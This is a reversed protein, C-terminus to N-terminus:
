LYVPWELPEKWDQWPLGITSASGPLFLFASSYTFSSNSCIHIYSTHFCDGLPQSVTLVRVPYRLLKLHLFIFLYLFLFLIFYILCPLREELFAGLAHFVNATHLAIQLNIIIADLDGSGITVLLQWFYGRWEVWFQCMVTSVM